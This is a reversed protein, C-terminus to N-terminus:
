IQVICGQQYLNIRNKNNYLCYWLKPIPKQIKKKNQKENTKKKKDTQKSAQKQDIRTTEM